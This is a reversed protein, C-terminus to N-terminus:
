GLAGPGQRHADVQQAYHDVMERRKHGTVVMIEETSAGSLRAQTVYGIRLSHAGWNRVDVFKGLIGRISQASLPGQRLTGHKTMGRFLPGSGIGSVELWAEYARIPCLEPDETPWLPKSKGARLQDTKSNALWVVWGTTEERIDAVNLGALESVRLAGHWGILLLARNRVQALGGTTNDILDLAKRMDEILLASKQDVPAGLHRRLGEMWERWASYASPRELGEAVWAKSIAAMIQAITNRGAGPEQGRPMTERRRNRVAQLYRIRPYALGYVFDRVSLIDDWDRGKFECFALFHSLNDQYATTTKEARNHSWRDIWKRLLACHEESSPQRWRDLRGQRQVMETPDWTPEPLEETIVHEVIAQIAAEDVLRRAKV